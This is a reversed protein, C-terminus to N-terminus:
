LKYIVMTFLFDTVREAFPLLLFVAVVGTGDFVSSGGTDFENGLTCVASTELWTDLGWIPHPKGGGLVEDVTPFPKETGLDDAGALLKITLAWSPSDTGISGSGNTVNLSISINM